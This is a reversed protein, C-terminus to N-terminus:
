KINTSRRIIDKGEHFRGGGDQQRKFDGMQIRAQTEHLTLIYLLKRRRM